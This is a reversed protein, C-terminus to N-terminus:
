GYLAEFDDSICVFTVPLGNSTSRCNTFGRQGLAGRLAKAQAVTEFYFIFGEGNIVIDDSPIWALEPAEVEVTLDVKRYSRYGDLARAIELLVPVSLPNM